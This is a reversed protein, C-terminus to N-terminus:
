LESVPASVSCLKAIEAPCEIHPLHGIQAFLNLSVRGPAILCQRWPVIRDDRGWILRTPVSLRDLASRLDFMQTDGEFLADAMRLQVSRLLPDQRQTIAVQAFQDTILNSDGVLEKLWM